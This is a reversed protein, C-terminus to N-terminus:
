LNVIQFLEALNGRGISRNFIFMEKFDGLIFSFRVVSVVLRLNFKTLPFFVRRPNGVGLALCPRGGEEGKKTGGREVGGFEIPAPPFREESKKRM